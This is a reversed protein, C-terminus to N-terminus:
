AQQRGRIHGPRAPWPSFTSPKAPRREKKKAMPMFKKMSAAFSRAARRRQDRITSSNSGIFGLESISLVWQWVDPTDFLIGIVLEDARGVLRQRRHEAAGLLQM